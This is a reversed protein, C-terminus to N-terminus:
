IILLVIIIAAKSLQIEELSPANNINNMLTILNDRGVIIMM